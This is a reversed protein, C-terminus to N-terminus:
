IIDDKTSGENQELGTQVYQEFESARTIYENPPLGSGLSQVAQALCSQRIIYVQTQAREEATPYSSGGKFGTSGSTGTSSSTSGDVMTAGVTNWYTGNQKKKLEWIQGVQAQVLAKYADASDGFSVVFEQKDKGDLNYKLILQNYKGKSVVEPVETIRVQAM